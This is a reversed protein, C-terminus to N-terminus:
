RSMTNVFNITQDIYESLQETFASIDIGAERAAANVMAIVKDKKAAGNLASREAEIMAADALKMVLAWLEKLSKGKNAKIVKKVSIFATIGASILGVLGTILAVLQTTNTIWDM